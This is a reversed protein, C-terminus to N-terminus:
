ISSITVMITPRRRTERYIFGSLTKTINKELNDPNHKITNLITKRAQNLLGSAEKTSTFGRSVIEPDGILSGDSKRTIIHVLIIGDKSLMERDRMEAPGIDGVGSGDVFVMSIPEIEGMRMKNNKFTIVQGDEVVAIHRDPIGTQMALIAAQKLQRLEGYAPIFYKPRTLHLLLKIDEQGGHGSVHVPAIEEYIVNAGRRFLDNITSFVAEENGPITKSSLVVTDGERIDFQRQTGRSLRGLISTPEGQSGTCMIAVQENPLHLAEEISIKQDEDISLFGMKQAIKANEVMSTGVFAIKRNFKKAANVVQQMRSILSAFSAVIIRGEAQSFVKELAEGVVQESPTWGPRTSNTSDSILALVGRKSFEVLKGYDTPWNDVPTHDFKYDGSQVILGEPTEIGL